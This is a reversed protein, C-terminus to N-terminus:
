SAVSTEIQKGLFHLASQTPSYAYVCESRGSFMWAISLAESIAIEEGAQNRWITQVLGRSKCM